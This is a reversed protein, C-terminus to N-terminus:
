SLDTPKKKIKLHESSVTAARQVDDMRIPIVLSSHVDPNNLGDNTENTLLVEGASLANHKYSHNV